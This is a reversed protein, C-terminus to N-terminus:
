RAAALEKCLFNTVETISLDDVYAGNKMFLEEFPLGKRNFARELAVAFQVVDMSEFQLDEVLRTDVTIGSPLDLGWDAVTENAIAIVTTQVFARDVM